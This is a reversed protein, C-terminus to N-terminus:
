ATVAGYILRAGVVVLALSLVRVILPGKVRKSIAAGFRAGGFAGVAMAAAPIYLIRGAAVNGASGVLATVAQAHFPARRGAASGSRVFSAQTSAPSM